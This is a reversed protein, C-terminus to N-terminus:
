MGATSLFLKDTKRKVEAYCECANEELKARNVIHILGRRYQIADMKQLLRAVVTLTTRRVGLMQSILEQTLPIRDSGVCDQTQLLWRCLRAELVHLANCAVSQQIQSLLFDNYEIILNRIVDSEKAAVQFQSAAIREADGAIQVVAKGFARRSGLGATAGIIGARGVTGTEVTAGSLMVIVLSVMGSKPFYVHETEDGVDHLTVGCELPVTRLHPALLSFDRAPLASLFKNCKASQYLQRAGDPAYSVYTEGGYEM